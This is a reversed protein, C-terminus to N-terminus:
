PEPLVSCWNLDMIFFSTANLLIHARIFSAHLVPFGAPTDIAIHPLRIHLYCRHRSSHSLSPLPNHAIRM